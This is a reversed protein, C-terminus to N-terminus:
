RRDEVRLFGQPTQDAASDGLTLEGRQDFRDERVLLRGIHDTTESPVVNLGQDVRDILDTITKWGRPISQKIQTRFKCVKVPRPSGRGQTLSGFSLESTIICSTHQGCM